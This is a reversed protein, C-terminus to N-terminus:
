ILSPNPEDASTEEVYRWFICFRFENQTQDHNILPRERFEGSREGIQMRAEIRQRISAVTIEGTGRFGAERIPRVLSDLNMWGTEDKIWEDSENIQSNDIKIQIM